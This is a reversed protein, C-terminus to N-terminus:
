SALAAPRGSYFGDDLWRYYWYWESGGWGLYRVYLRGDSNRYITGWFFIAKGKWSEPILEQHALLYDLVNANLVPQDVLEKKLDNGTISGKKQKKSLYFPIGPNWKWLGIKKHEVLTFGEPIFPAADCDILHEPYTIVAKGYVLDRIGSLNKFQKLKTVEEATWGANELADGLQNMAGISLTSM